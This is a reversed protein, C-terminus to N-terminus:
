RGVDLNLERKVKKMSARYAELKDNTLAREDLRGIRVMNEDNGLEFFDIYSNWFDNDASKDKYGTIEYMLCADSINVDPDFKDRLESLLAKQDDTLRSDDTFTYRGAANFALAEDENGDLWNLMNQVSREANKVLNKAQEEEKMM